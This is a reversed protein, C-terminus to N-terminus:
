CYFTRELGLRLVTVLFHCYINNKQVRITTQSPCSHRISRVAQYTWHKTNNLKYLSRGVFYTNSCPQRSFVSSTYYNSKAQIRNVTTPLSFKYSLCPGQIVKVAYPIVQFTCRIAAHISKIPYAHRKHDVTLKINNPGSSIRSNIHHRSIGQIRNKTCNVLTKQTCDGKQRMRM